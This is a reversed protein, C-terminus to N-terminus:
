LLAAAALRLKSITEAIPAVSGATRAVHSLLQALRTRNPRDGALEHRIGATAWLALGPDDIRDRHLDLLVDLQAVLGHLDDLGLGAGIASPVRATATPIGTADRGPRDDHGDSEIDDM